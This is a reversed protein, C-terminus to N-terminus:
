ESAEIFNRVLELDNKIDFSGYEMNGMEFYMERNNGEINFGIITATKIGFVREGTKSFRIITGKTLGMAEKALKTPDIDEIIGVDKLAKHPKLGKTIEKTLAKM